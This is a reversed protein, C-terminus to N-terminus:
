DEGRIKKFIVSVAFSRIINLVLIFTSFMVSKWFDQDSWVMQLAITYAFGISNTVISELASAKKESDM